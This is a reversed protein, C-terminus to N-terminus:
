IWVRQAQCKLCGTSFGRLPDAVVYMVAASVIYLETKQQYIHIQPSVRFDRERDRDTNSLFYKCVVYVWM